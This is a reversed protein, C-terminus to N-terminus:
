DRCRSVEVEEQGEEQWQIAETWRPRGFCSFFTLFFLFFLFSKKLFFCFNIWTGCENGRGRVGSIWSKGEETLAKREKKERKKKRKRKRREAKGQKQKKEDGRKGWFRKEKASRDAVGALLGGHFALLRLVFFVFCFFFCLFFVFFVLLFALM